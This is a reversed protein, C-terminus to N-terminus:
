ATALLESVFRGAGSTNAVSLGTPDRALLAGTSPNPVIWAALAFPGVATTPDFMGYLTVPQSGGAPVNVTAVRYAPNTVLAGAENPQALAQQALAASVFLHGAIVGNSGSVEELWAAQVGYTVPASTPNQWTFTASALTTAAPLPLPTVAVQVASVSGAMQTTRKYEYYAYTGGALGVAILSGGLLATTRNM